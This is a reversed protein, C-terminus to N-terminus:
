QRPTARRTAVGIGAQEFTQAILTYGATRCHPDFLHILSCFWTNHCISRRQQAVSGSNFANFVPAVVMNSKAAQNTIMDNLLTAGTTIVGSGSLVILPNYYTMTAIPVDPGVAARLQSFIANLNTTLTMIFQGIKQKTIGGGQVLQLVDNAGIDITILSVQGPHAQIFALAQTLQPTTTMGTTYKWNPCFAGNVGVMTSSTEDVCGLNEIKLDPQAPLMNEYLQHAYGHSYDHNPQWGFALSDGLALYYTTSQAHGRAPAVVLVGSIVVLAVLLRRM